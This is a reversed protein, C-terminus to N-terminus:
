SARSRAFSEVQEIVVGPIEVEGRAALVVRKIKDVDVCWYEDPILDVNVMRFGWSKRLDLGAPTEAVTHAAVLTASDTNGQTEQVLELARLQEQDAAKTAQLLRWTLAEDCAQWYEDIPKYMADITRKAELIPTTIGKREKELKARRERIAVVVRGGMDRRDQTSLDLTGIMQLAEEAETRQPSLTLELDAPIALATVAKKRAM